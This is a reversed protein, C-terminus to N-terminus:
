HVACCAADPGLSHGPGGGRAPRSIAGPGLNSRRLQLSPFPSAAAPLAGPMRPPQRSSALGCAPVRPGRWVKYLAKAFEKEDEKLERGPGRLVSLAALVCQLAPRLPLTDAASLDRLVSVLDAVIDANILHSFKALGQSSPAAPLSAAAATLTAAAAALSAAPATGETRRVEMVEAM